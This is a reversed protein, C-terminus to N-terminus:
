ASPKPLRRSIRAMWGVLVLGAGAALRLGWTFSAPEYRFELAAAGAPVVVGRLAHNARLIPVRKGELYAHWGSDWHDALVVLGPTEMHVSVKVRTSIETVIEGRGRCTAPLSVPTEVYAISRPDFDDSGLKKLRVANDPVCEVQQPVFVRPLVAENTLVWYDPGQFV